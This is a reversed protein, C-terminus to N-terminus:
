KVAQWSSELAPDGGLFKYNNGEGDGVVQGVSFGTIAQYFDNITPTEGEYGTMTGKQEYYRAMAQRQNAASEMQTFLKRLRAANKEPPLAPNYARSILREGEKETFQAGLIVRLNRQVVEEVQEKANAADPNLISLALPSYSGLMGIMPGTLQKGGELQGLVTGIQALQGTMDAGGGQTWDLYDQAYKEDVKKQGATQEAAGGVTVTQKAAGAQKLKVQYDVFDGKFGEKKALNYQQILAPPADGGQRAAKIADAPTMIGARLAGSLMPFNKGLLKQAMASQQALKDAATKEKRATKIDELQGAISQQLGVNPRLSMGALGSALRLRRERDDPAQSTIFDFLGAM